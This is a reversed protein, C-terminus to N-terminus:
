KQAIQTSILDDVVGLVRWLIPDTVDVEHDVRDTARACPAEKASQLAATRQEWYEWEAEGPGLLGLTQSQRNGRGLNARATRLQLLDPAQEIVPSETNEDVAGEWEGFSTLGMHAGRLSVDLPFDDEGHSISSAAYRLASRPQRTRRSM